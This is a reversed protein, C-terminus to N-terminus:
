QIVITKKLSRHKRYDIYMTYTGKELKTDLKLSNLGNVVKFSQDLVITNDAGTITVNCSNAELCISNVSVTINNDEVIASIAEDNECPRYVITNIEIKKNEEDIESIRYYSIGTLPSEDIISYEHAVQTPSDTVSNKLTGITEFHIGDQTREVVFNGKKVEEITTWRITAFYNNCDASFAIFRNPSHYTNYAKLSANFLITGAVALIFNRYHLKM